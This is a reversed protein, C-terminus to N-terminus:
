KSKEDDCDLDVACGGEERDFLKKEESSTQGAADVAPLIEQQFCTQRVYDIISKEGTIVSFGDPNGAILVPITEIGLTTLLTRNVEHSYSPMVTLGAFDLSEIKDVPNFHFSCSNCSELADIVAQCHPCSSSFFLYLQRTPDSCIKSAFTGRSLGGQGSGRAAPSFELSAFALVVALFVLGGKGVRAPGGLFNLLLIFVFILLCYSCFVEAIFFQFSIFVGEAALGALLLMEVAKRSKENEPLRLILFLVLFYLLGATNFLLPSVATLDEVVQCGQNLCVAEGRAIIVLLQGAIILGALAALLSSIKRATMPHPSAIPIM